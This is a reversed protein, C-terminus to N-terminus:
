IPVEFVLFAHLWNSGSPFGGNRKFSTVENKSKTVEKFIMKNNAVIWIVEMNCEHWTKM